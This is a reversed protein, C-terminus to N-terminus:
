RLTLQKPSRRNVSKREATLTVGCPLPSEAGRLFYFVKHGLEAPGKALLDHIHQPAGPLEYRLAPGNAMDM